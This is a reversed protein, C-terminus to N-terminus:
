CVRTKTLHVVGVNDNFIPEHWTVIQATEGPELFTTFSAPCNTVRPAEKDLVQITFNCTATLNSIPSRVTFKIRNLGVLLEGGLQKAWAPDSDVYRFWDMNSKPQSFTVYARDELSAVTVAM